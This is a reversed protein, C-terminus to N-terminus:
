ILDQWQREEKNRLRWHSGLKGLIFCLARVIAEDRREWAQSGEGEEQKQFKSLM